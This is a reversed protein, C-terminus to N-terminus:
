VASPCAVHIDRLSIFREYLKESTLYTMHLIDGKCNSKLVSNKSLHSCVEEPLKRQKLCLMRGGKRIILGSHHKGVVCLYTHFLISYLFSFLIKQRHHWRETLVLLDYGLAQLRTKSSLKCGGRTCGRV